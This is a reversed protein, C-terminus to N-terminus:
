TMRAVSGCGDQKGGREFGIGAEIRGVLAAKVNM